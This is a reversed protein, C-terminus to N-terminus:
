IAGKIIEVNEKTDIHEKLYIAYGMEDRIANALEEKSLSKSDFLYLYEPQKGMDTTWNGGMDRIFEYLVDDYGKGDNRGFDYYGYELKVALMKGSSKYYDGM